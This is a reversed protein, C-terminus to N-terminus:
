AKGLFLRSFRGGMAAALPRSIRPGNPPGSWLAELGAKGPSAPPNWIFLDLRHTESLEEQNDEISRLEGAVVPEVDHNRWKEDSHDAVCGIQCVLCRVAQNDDQNKGKSEASPQRKRNREYICEAEISQAGADGSMSLPEEAM